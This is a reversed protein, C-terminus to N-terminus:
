RGRDIRPEVRGGGPRYTDPEARIPAPAGIPRRPAADPSWAAPPIPPRAQPPAAPRGAQPGAQPPPSVTEEAFGQAPRRGPEPLRLSLARIEGQIEDMRAELADLRPKIGFVSFPMMMFALALLIITIVLLLQAWWPMWDPLSFVSM